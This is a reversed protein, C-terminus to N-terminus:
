FDAPYIEEEGNHTKAENANNYHINPNQKKKVIFNFGGRDTYNFGDMFHLFLFKITVGKLNQHCSDGWIQDNLPCLEIQKLRNIKDGGLATVASFAIQRATSIGM